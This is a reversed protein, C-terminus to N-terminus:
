SATSGHLHSALSSLPIGEVVHFIDFVHEGKPLSLSPTNQPAERPAPVKREAM